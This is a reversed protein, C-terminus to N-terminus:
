PTDSVTEDGAASTLARWVLPDVGDAYFKV